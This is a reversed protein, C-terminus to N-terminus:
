NKEEQLKGHTIKKARDIFLIGNLHDVEHQLVRAFYGEATGEILQGNENLAKFLVKKSRKVLGNVGPVSLCGEEATEKRFSFHSLVPNIIILPGDKYAIVAAQISVGVQPAALGVGDKEHMTQIMDQFLEQLEPIKTPDVDAAKKRLFPDPYYTLPLTKSM